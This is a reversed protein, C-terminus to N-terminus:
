NACLFILSIKVCTLCCCFPPEPPEPPVPPGWPGCGCATDSGPVGWSCACSGLLFHSALAPAAAWDSPCVFPLVFSRVSQSLSHFVSGASSLSFHAAFQSPILFLLFFVRRLPRPPFSLSFSCSFFHKNKKFSLYSSFLSWIGPWTSHSLIALIDPWASRGRTLAKWM